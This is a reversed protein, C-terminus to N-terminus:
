ILQINNRIKNIIRKSGVLLFVGSFELLFSGLIFYNLELLQSIM